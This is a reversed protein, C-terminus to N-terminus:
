KTKRQADKTTKSALACAKSAQKEKKSIYAIM